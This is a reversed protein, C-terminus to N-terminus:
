PFAGTNDTCVDTGTNDTLVGTNDTFVGTDLGVDCITISIM